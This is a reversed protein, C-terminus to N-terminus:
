RIDSDGIMPSWCLLPITNYIPTKEKLKHIIFQDVADFQTTNNFIEILLKAINNTIIYGHTTREHYISVYGNVINSQCIFENIKISQPGPIMFNETFRGGFYTIGDTPFVTKEIQEKFKESFMADDEFVMVVPLNKDIIKKWIRLHSIFCGCAGPQLKNSLKKFLGFEKENSPNKGDFGYVIEVDTYPCMEEFQKLRDPRRKLNIVFKKM